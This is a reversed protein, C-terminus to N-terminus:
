LSVETYHGIYGISSNPFLSTYFKAADEGENDFWLCPSIKVSSGTPTSVSM